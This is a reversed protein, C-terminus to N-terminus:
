LGRQIGKRSVYEVLTLIVMGPVFSLLLWEIGVVAAVVVDHKMLDGYKLLTVRNNEVSYVSFFYDDNDKYDVRITQSRTVPNDALVRIDVRKFRKKIPKTLTHGIEKERKPEIYFSYQDQLKAGQARLVNLGFRQLAERFASENDYKSRMLQLGVEHTLLLPKGHEFGVVKFTRPVNTKSIPMPETLLASQKNCGVFGVVLSIVFWAAIMIRWCRKVMSVGVEMVRCRDSARGRRWTGM